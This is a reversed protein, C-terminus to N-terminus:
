DRVCRVSFGYGKYYDLRYVASYNYRLHRSWAYDAPSESASWFLAYYGIDYFPGSYDRYGAPLGAFGYTDIGNGDSNWGSTSKLKKGAESGLHDVDVIIEM